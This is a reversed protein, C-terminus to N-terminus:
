KPFIQNYLGYKSSKILVGVQADHDAGAAKSEESTIARKLDDFSDFEYIALFQPEARKSYFRRVNKLGPLKGAFLPIHHLDYWENFEEEKGPIVEASFIM